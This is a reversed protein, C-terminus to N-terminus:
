AIEIKKTVYAIWFQLKSCKKTLNKNKSELNPLFVLHDLYRLLDM